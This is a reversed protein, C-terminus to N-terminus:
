KKVLEDFIEELHYEDGEVYGNHDYVINGEKDLIYTQPITQFGLSQQLTQNEDSLIIYEWGKTSVIAPVKALNRRTDISIAVLEMDYKEQWEEYFDAIADLERKCPSCWTAWFSILTIKGNNAYDQINVTNGDLTKIEAAPLKRQGFLSNSLIFLGILLIIQKFLHM